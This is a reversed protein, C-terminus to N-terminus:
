HWAASPFIFYFSFSTFSRFLLCLPESQFISQCTRSRLTPFHTKLYHPPHCPSRPSSWSGWPTGALVSPGRGTWRGTQKRWRMELPSQWGSASGWGCLDACWASASLCTSFWKEGSKALSWNKILSWMSSVSLRTQNSRQPSWHPIASTLSSSAPACSAPCSFLLQALSSFGRRRWCLPVM